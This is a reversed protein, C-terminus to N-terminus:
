GNPIKEFINFDINQIPSFDFQNDNWYKLLKGLTKIDVLDYVRPSIIWSEMRTTFLETLKKGLDKFSLDAWGIIYERIWSDVYNKHLGLIIILQNEKPFINVYVNNLPEKKNMYYGIPKPELPSFIGSACVEILPYKYVTFEYYGSPSEIESEFQSKYYNLDKLALHLGQLYKHSIEIFVSNFISKASIIRNFIEVEREKKRLESCCARYSFLLCTLYEDTKFDPNKEIHEFLLNDHISCFLDVSIANKISIKKLSFYGDKDIKFYDNSSFQYLHNSVALKDLIGNQQMLHSNIAFQNCDPHLCNWKKNSVNKRIQALIKTDHQEPTM